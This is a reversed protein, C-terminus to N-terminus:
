KFFLIYIECNLCFVFLFCGIVFICFPLIPSDHIKDNKILVYFILGPFIFSITNAATCGVLSFLVKLGPIIITIGGIIIYLIIIIIFKTSNEMELEEIINNDDDSKIQTSFKLEFIETKNENSSISNEITKEISNGIINNNNINNNDNNNDNDMNELEKGKIEKIKIKDNRGTLKYFLLILLFFNKKLAFFMLPIGTTSCMLFGINSIILVSKLFSHQDKYTIMDNFMMNLITDNLEEGYMLYGIVGTISYIFFCFIVGIGSTVMMQKQNPKKLTFYVAFVNFQFSYSLIVTPLSSLLQSIDNKWIFLSFTFKPLTLNYIIKYIYIIILTIVFILIGFIGIFSVNEMGELTDNFIVIGMLIFIILIYFFNHYNTVFFSDESVFASLINKMTEGFIRFYACCLGFNNLIIMILIILYGKNGLVEKTIEAYSTKKTVEQSQILFSVTLLTEYGIIFFFILGIIIGLYRISIPLSLIGAGLISNAINFSAIKPSINGHPKEYNEEKKKAIPYNNENNPIKNINININSNTLNETKNSDNM